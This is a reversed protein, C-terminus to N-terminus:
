KMFSVKMVDRSDGAQMEVFYIGSTLDGPIWEVSHHGAQIFDNQIVEVM